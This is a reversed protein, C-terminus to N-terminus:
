LCPPRVRMVECTSWDFGLQTAMASLQLHLLEVELHAGLEVGNPYRDDSTAM